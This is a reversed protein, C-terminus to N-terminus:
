RFLVEMRKVVCAMRILHASKVETMTEAGGNEGQGQQANVSCACLFRISGLEIMLIARNAVTVAAVATRTCALPQNWWRTIKRARLRSGCQGVFSHQSGNEVAARSRRHRSPARSQCLFLCEGNDIVNAVTEHLRAYYCRICGRLSRRCFLSGRRRQCRTAIKCSPSCEVCAVACGTMAHFTVAVPRTGIEDKWLRTIEEGVFRPAANVSLFEEGSDSITHPAAFHRGPAVHEGLALDSVDAFIDVACEQPGVALHRASCLPAKTRIPADRPQM